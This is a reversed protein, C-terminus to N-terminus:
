ALRAVSKLLRRVALRHGGTSIVIARYLRGHVGPFAAFTKAHIEISGADTPELEFRLEYRSFRHRGGLSLRREPQCEEVRFGLLTDGVSVSDSWIGSRQTERLDWLWLIPAPLKMAFSSRMVRVLAAWVARASADIRIVHDDMFPLAEVRHLM